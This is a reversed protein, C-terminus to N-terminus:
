IGKIRVRCNMPTASCLLRQSGTNVGAFTMLRQWLLGTRGSRDAIVMHNGGRSALPNSALALLENAPGDIYSICTAAKTTSYARCWGYASLRDIVAKGFVRERNPVEVQLVSGSKLKQFM